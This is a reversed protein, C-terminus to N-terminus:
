KLEAHAYRELITEEAPPHLINNEALDNADPYDTARILEAAKELDYDTRRLEIGPGLLAWYAGPDGFPMGVSGANVVRTKGVMRDFQMHTHGCVVVSEGVGAFVPLLREEPTRRTFIETDNRPTAHCFLVEGLGAINMRLKEPWSAVERADNDTLSRGSHQILVRFKPPAGSDKGAREELAARDGNGKIFFIPTDVARLFALTERPMPGPMIDGGVVIQNVKERRIEALVAQLAPLNGHIDYIAAVLM